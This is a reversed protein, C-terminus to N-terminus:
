LSVALLAVNFLLGVSNSVIYVRSHYLVSHILLMSMGFVLLAPMLPPISATGQISAIFAPLTAAQIFVIGLYGIADLM